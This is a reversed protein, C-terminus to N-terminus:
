HLDENKEGCAGAWRSLFDLLERPPILWLDAATEHFTENVLVTLGRGRLAIFADEDTRDDGLYAVATGPPVEELIARVATGKDRGPARLEIGGDFGRLLLGDRDAIERWKREVTDSESPKPSPTRGRWHYALCAVKRECRPALGEAEAWTFAEHLGRRYVADIDPARYSAGSKMHEWGHSGWLEPLAKFGLLPKIDEISRGSVVVVRCNGNEMIGDIIRRVGPYPVATDRDERFPALTGDYDIILTRVASRKLEAFFRILDFNPNLLKM